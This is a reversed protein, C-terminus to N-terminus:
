ETKLHIRTRVFSMLADDRYVFLSTNSNSACLQNQLIKHHNFCDNIYEFIGFFPLSNEVRGEVGSVRKELITVNFTGLASIHLQHTM